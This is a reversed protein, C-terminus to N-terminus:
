KHMCVIYVLSQIIIINLKLDRQTFLCRFCTVERLTLGVQFSGLSNYVRLEYM